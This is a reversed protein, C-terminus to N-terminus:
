PAFPSARPDGGHGKLKADSGLIERSRLLEAPVWSIVRVWSIHLRKWIRPRPMLGSRILTIVGAEQRERGMSTRVSFTEAAPAKRRDIVEGRRPSIKM